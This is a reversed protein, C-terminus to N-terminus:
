PPTEESNITNSTPSATKLNTIDCLSSNAAAVHKLQQYRTVSKGKCSSCPCPVFSSSMASSASYSLAIRDVECKVNIIAITYDNRLINSIRLIYCSTHSKARVLYSFSM